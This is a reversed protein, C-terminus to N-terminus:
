GKFPSIQRLDKIIKPLVQLVYDIEKATTWRGLSFRISGHIQEPRLGTALLVHSPKLNQSSCASGTSVAVGLQDLKLMVAEGEVFAFRINVNNALRKQPPGNLSSHSITKLIGKILKNRLKILRVTEKPMEKQALAVAQAFGAILPVNMTSSRLGKEHGGGHLLPEIKVRKKVYLLAVGKPGYIKHASATLLDIKMKWVDIPIKDFTQAADTHFYVGKQQCIKGIAAIPQITGIENNAHMVSVLITKPTIAKKVEQSNVLGYKDVALKTIKLGQSQLWNASNLICDHEVASTIIHNGKHKNAWVIGKLVTNNSETASATFIVEEADANIARAIIQRSQEVVAKAKRGFFHLSSSNGFNNKLHKAMVKLVRPDIPTSAAYDLYIKKM